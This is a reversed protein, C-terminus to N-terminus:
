RDEDKLVRKSPIYKHAPGSHNIKCALLAYVTSNDLSMRNETVMKRVTSLVRESSANSHPICLLAKMLRPLESFRVDKGLLGWFRDIKGEQPLQKNETLQYDILEERLKDENFSLQPLLAVLSEVAGPTIDLRAAPDLVKLDRLLPNDLPFSSFMEQLAAEYFRRVSQFIKKKVSVPLEISRMFAKTGAGIFLDEDALQHGEGYEVERLPVGVIARAPVLYGLIRRILRCMEEQLRHIQVEESQFAINFESLPRLAATLFLFYIKVVPDGLHSALERLKASKEVEELSDFYAYYFTYIYIDAASVVRVKLADWQNLVRQICSLLSLWRTSCDKLQKLHESDTFDVFDEYIECREASEDFHTYIRVLVDEVPVQAARIACGAALQVLHCICGLDQVHPQRTKLRSIVSNHKGQMVSANDSNFAILNEWPIGRKRLAESLKEYLNEANGVNCIPMELLRTVVQLNAEDYLRAMIVFEKDANRNSSEDCMLSFPQSQCTKALEDDLEAAIAGKIIQTTKTEGASYKRAIASDPFMRAVCKNFDDCFTFSVNNKACLMAMTAEANIVQDAETTNGTVFASVTPAHKQAELGRKHKASIKHQTVDTRGGHSVSFDCGCITCFAHSHGMRSKKVFSFESEWEELYKCFKAKKSPIDEGGGDM